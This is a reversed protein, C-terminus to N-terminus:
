EPPFHGKFCNIVSNASDACGDFNSHTFADGACIILPSDQLVIHGPTDEYANRIQSYRWRIVRTKDAKPLDPIVKRLHELMIPEIQGFSKELHELSFPVSAHAVLSLGGDPGNQRKETDISVFCICPNDSVYKSAWEVGALKDLDSYFMGLAFRSSYVVKNLKKRFPDLYKAIDGRLNLLQPIPMTIIIADVDQQVNANNANNDTACATALSDHANVKNLNLMYKSEAGSEKLFYKPISNIGRPTVFHKTDDAGRMGDIKATLPSLVANATLEDYLSKHKDQYEKTASIYQAGLDLSLTSGPGYRTTSMRGGAGRGKEWIALTIRDQYIRKLFCAVMTGTAGAGVVLCNIPKMKNEM